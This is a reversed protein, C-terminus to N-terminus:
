FGQALTGRQRPDSAGLFGEPTVMVANVSGFSPRVMVKHGRAKLLDITDTSFGTEIDIADPSWQHHFRPFNVSEQLNMKFDIINIIQNLTMTIIRSGGPSGTVLFPKGDKLVITPSMSSLPRKGAGPLNSEGQMLGFGNIAGAKAAFDDLENNLIVGTGEAVLGMGYSFNLTYTTSVANGAKDVVSYHTTQDSEFPLPNGPKPASVSENITARLSAAYAKSTLGKVPVKVSDPDGLWQFRDAYARKMSEVLLHMTAANPTELKDREVMNLMQILHVGGSSPPPMSIIEHGKYTGTVPTRVVLKYNKLDDATMVGGNAQVSAAIKAAVEGEYFGKVGFRAITELTKALDSQVLWGGHEHAKGQANLFISASSPFKALRAQAQPLSDALDHIVTIGQRALRHAPQILEGLTFKGSGHKELAYALGAVTGPVGVSLGSDRSKKPDPEGKDDLFSTLTIAAPATERFDLAIPDKGIPKIVMFGGGGLNGAKPLTVALAFGVAVAADVANGGNKLIEVGILTALTEQSSVMGNKAFVPMPQANLSSTLCLLSLLYKFM